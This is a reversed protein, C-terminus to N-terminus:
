WVLYINHIHGIYVVYIGISTAKHKDDAQSYAKWPCMDFHLLRRPQLEMSLVVHLVYHHVSSHQEAHYGVQDAAETAQLAAAQQEKHDAVAQERALLGALKSSAEKDKAEAAAEKAKAM